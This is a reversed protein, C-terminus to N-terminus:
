LVLRTTPEGVWVRRGPYKVRVYDVFLSPDESNDAFMDWHMPLTLKVELGGALDAAEQWVMNGICGRSLRAADRGNIPLMVADFRWRRLRAQLGEWWVGDGAHYITRGAGQLVYGLHPFLGDATQEFQEHSAKVATVTVSGESVTEDDNMGLLRAGQVGLSAMRAAHARPAVFVADTDRALGAVAVPDLHDDHNHTCLVATVVGRADSPVFLPPVRRGALPSLFPDILVVATGLKVIWSAQGLWWLAAQDPCARVGDFLDRGAIV